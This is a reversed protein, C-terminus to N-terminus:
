ELSGLKIGVFRDDELDSIAFAKLNFVKRVEIHDDDQVSDISRFTWHM